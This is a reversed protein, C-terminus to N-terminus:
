EEEAPEDETRLCTTLEAVIANWREVDISEVDVEIADDDETIAAELFGADSELECFDVLELLLVAAQAEPTRLDYSYEPEPM